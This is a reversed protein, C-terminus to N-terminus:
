EGDHAYFREQARADGQDHLTLARPLEPVIVVYPVHARRARKILTDEIESLNTLM